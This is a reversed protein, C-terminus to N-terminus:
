TRSPGVEGRLKPVLAQNEYADPRIVKRELFADPHLILPLRTATNLKDNLAPLGLTHDLHGHSLVIAQMDNIDIELADM